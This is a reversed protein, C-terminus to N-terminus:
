IGPKSLFYHCSINRINVPTCCKHVKLITAGKNIVKQWINPLRRVGYALGYKNINRVSRGIARIFEDRTNHWACLNKWKPSSITIAYLFRCCKTTCFEMMRWSLALLRVEATVSRKRRQFHYIRSCGGYEGSLSYTWAIIIEEDFHFFWQYPGPVVCSIFKDMSYPPWYPVGVFISTSIIYSAKWVNALLHYVLPRSYQLYMFTTDRHIFDHSFYWVTSM